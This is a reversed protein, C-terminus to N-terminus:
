QNIPHSLIIRSVKKIQGIHRDTHHYFFRLMHDIRLKGAVPHKYFEAKLITDPLNIIFEIMDKRQEEWLRLLEDAQIQDHHIDAAAPAKLKLPQWMAFILLRFRISTSIGSKKFVPSFSLKKKLYDLTLKESLYLHQVIELVSWKGSAPRLNLKPTEIGSIYDVIWNRQLEIQTFIQELNNIKRHFERM